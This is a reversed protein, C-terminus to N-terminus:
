DSPTNQIPRLETSKLLDARVLQSSAAWVHSLSSELLLRGMVPTSPSEREKGPEGAESPACANDLSLKSYPFM